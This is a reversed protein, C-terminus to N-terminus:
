AKSKGYVRKAGYAVGAILLASLGGDIPVEPCPGCTTCLGPPLANNCCGVLDFCQAYINISPLLLMLFLFTVPLIYKIKTRM